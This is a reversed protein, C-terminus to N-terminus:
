CRALASLDFTITFFNMLKRKQFYFIGNPYIKPNCCHRLGHKNTMFGSTESPMSYLAGNAGQFIPIYTNKQRANAIKRETKM